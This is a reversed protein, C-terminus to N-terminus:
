IEWMLLCTRGGGGAPPACSPARLAATTGEAWVDECRKAKRLEAHLEKHGDAAGESDDESCFPSLARAEPANLPPWSNYPGSKLTEFAYVCKVCIKMKNNKNETNTNGKNTM